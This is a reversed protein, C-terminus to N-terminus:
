VIEQFITTKGSQLHGRHHWFDYTKPTEEQMVLHARRRTGIEVTKRPPNYPSQLPRTRFREKYYFSTETNGLCFDATRVRVFKCLSIRERLNWSFAEHFVDIWGDRFAKVRRPGATRAFKAPRKIGLERVAVREVLHDCGGTFGSSRGMQGFIAVDPM